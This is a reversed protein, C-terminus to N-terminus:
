RNMFREYTHHFPMIGFDVKNKWLIYALSVQDRYTYKKIEEWWDMMMKDVKINGCKRIMIGPAFLGFRKPFGDAKYHSLQMQIKNPSVLGQNVVYDGEEYACNRRNHLMVAIGYHKLYEECFINLDTKITFRADVFISTEYQEPLFEHQMIKVKRSLKESTLSPDKVQIIKWKSEKLKKKCLISKNRSVFCIHDWDKNEVIPEHLDYGNGIITTYIVKHNAM